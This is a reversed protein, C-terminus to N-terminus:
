RPSPTNFNTAMRRITKQLLSAPNESDKVGVTPVIPWKTHEDATIGDLDEEVTPCLIVSLHPYEMTAWRAMDLATWQSVEPMTWRHMELIAKIKNGFICGSILLAIDQSDDKLRRKVEGVTIATFVDGFMPSFLRRAARASIINGTAILVAKNTIVSPRSRYDFNTTLSGATSIPRRLPDM